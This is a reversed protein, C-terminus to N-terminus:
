ASTEADGFLARNILSRLDGSAEQLSRDDITMHLHVTRSVPDTWTMWVVGPMGAEPAGGGSEPLPCVPQRKLMREHANERETSM